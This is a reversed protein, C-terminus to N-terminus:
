LSCRLILLIALLKIAFHQLIRFIHRASKAFKTYKQIVHLFKCWKRSLLLLDRSPIGISVLTGETQTKDFERCAKGSLINGQVWKFLSSLVWQIRETFGCMNSNM